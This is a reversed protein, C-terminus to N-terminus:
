TGKKKSPIKRFSYKDFGKSEAIVKDDGVPMPPTNNVCLDNNLFMELEQAVMYPHMIKQMAYDKMVPNIQFGNKHTFVFVPTNLKLFMEKWVPKKAFENIIEFSNAKHWWTEFTVRDFANMVDEQSAFACKPTKNDSDWQIYVPYIKGCFGVIAYYIEERGRYFMRNQPTEKPIGYIDYRPFEIAKIFAKTIDNKIYESKRIYLPVQEVAFDSLAGDYYDQFSRIVKM